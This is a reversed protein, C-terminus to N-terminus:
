WSTNKGMKFNTVRDGSLGSRYGCSGKKKKCDIGAKEATKKLEETPGEFIINQIDYGLINNAIKFHSKGINTKLFLDHGMGVKQSGQGPFLWGSSM